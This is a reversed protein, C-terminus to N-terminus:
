MSVVFHLFTLSIQQSDHLFVIEPVSDYFGCGLVLMSPSGNALVIQTFQTNPLVSPCLVFPSILFPAVETGGFSLPLWALKWVGSFVLAQQLRAGPEETAELVTVAVQPSRLDQWLAM